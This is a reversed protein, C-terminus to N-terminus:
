LFPRGDFGVLFVKHPTRRRPKPTEGSRSCGLAVLALVALVVLAAPAPRSNSRM